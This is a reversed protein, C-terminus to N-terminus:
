VGIRKFSNWFISISPFSGFEKYSVLMVKIGFGSVGSFLLVISWNGQHVHICFTEVLYYGVLDLLVNFFNNVVVLFSKYRPHLGPEIDAFCNVHNMVDIFSLVLVM